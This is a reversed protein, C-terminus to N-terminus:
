GRQTLDKQLQTKRYAYIPGVQTQWALVEIYVDRDNLMRNVLEVERTVSEKEQYFIAFFVQM